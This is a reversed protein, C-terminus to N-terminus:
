EATIVPAGPTGRLIAMYYGASRRYQRLFVFKGLIEMLRRRPYFEVKMNMPAQAPPNKIGLVGNASADFEASKIWASKVFAKCEALRIDLGEELIKTEPMNLGMISFARIRGAKAGAKILGEPCAKKSNVKIDIHIDAVGPEIGELAKLEPLSAGKLSVHAYAGRMGREIRGKLIGNYIEGSIIFAARMKFLSLPSFRVRVRTLYLSESRKVSILRVGKTEYSLPFVKEFSSAKMILGTRERLSKKLIDAVVHAPLLIFIAEILFIFCLVTVIPIIILRRQV